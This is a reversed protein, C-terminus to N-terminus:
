QFGPPRFLMRLFYGDDFVAGPPPTRDGSYDLLYDQAGADAAHDPCPSEDVHHACLDLLTGDHERLLLMPASCLVTRPAAKVLASVAGV